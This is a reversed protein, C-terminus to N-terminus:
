FLDYNIYCFLCIKVQECGLIIVTTFYWIGTLNGAPSSFYGDRNLDSISAVWSYFIMVMGMGILDLVRCTDPVRVWFTMWWVECVLELFLSITPYITVEDDNQIHFFIVGM